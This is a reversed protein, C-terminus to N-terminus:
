MHVVLKNSTLKKLYLYKSTSGANMSRLYKINRCNQGIYLNIVGISGLSTQNEGCFDFCGKKKWFKFDSQM